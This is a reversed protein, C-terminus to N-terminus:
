NDVTSSVVTVIKFPFYDAQLPPLAITWGAGGQVHRHHKM